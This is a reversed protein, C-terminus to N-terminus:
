IDHLMSVSIRNGMLTCLQHKIVPSNRNESNFPKSLCPERRGKWTAKISRHKFNFNGVGVVLGRSYPIEETQLCCRKEKPKTTGQYFCEYGHGLLVVPKGWILQKNKQELVVFM